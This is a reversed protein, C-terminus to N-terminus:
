MINYWYLNLYRDRAVLNSKILAWYNDYCKFGYKLSMQASCCDVIITVRHHHYYNHFHWLVSIIKKKKVTKLKSCLICFINLKLKYWTTVYLDCLDFIIEIPRTLRAAVERKLETHFEVKYCTIFVQKYM